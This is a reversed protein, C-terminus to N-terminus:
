EDGKKMADKIMQEVESKKVYDKVNPITPLLDKIKGNILIGVKKDTFFLDTEIYKTTDVKSFSTVKYATVKNM